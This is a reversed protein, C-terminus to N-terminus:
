KVEPMLVGITKDKSLYKKAVNQIDKASIAYINKKTKFFTVL